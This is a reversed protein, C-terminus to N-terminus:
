NRMRDLVADAMEVTNCLRCGDSYIDRTRLGDSLTEDVADEIVKAEQELGFSFRLMMAVCLIQALPNAVGQGAIDQASGGSPEYLGFGDQNFSASALLGLSGPLVAALDSLIDGFMNPALLVDFQRPNVVLQMACNDVYIHRLSVDPYDSHVEEVVKRWLRSSGLVNAKDVSTVSGGKGGSRKRAAEFAVKAIAAIQDEDYRAVDEAVRKGAEEFTRHGGFYIDGLLERV